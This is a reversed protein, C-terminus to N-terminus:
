SKIHISDLMGGHRKLTNMLLRNFLASFPIFIFYFVLLFIFSFSYLYVIFTLILIILAFPYEALTETIGKEKILSKIKGKTEQVIFLISSILIFLTFVNVLFILSYFYIYNRKGVCTGLWPCHHDFKEVCNNCFYCHIARPPRLIGCVKCFKGKLYSHRITFCCAQSRTHIQEMSCKPGDYSSLM